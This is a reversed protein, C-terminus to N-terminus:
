AGALDETEGTEACLPCRAHGVVPSIEGQNWALIKVTGPNEPDLEDICNQCVWTAWGTHSGVTEIGQYVWNSSVTADTM